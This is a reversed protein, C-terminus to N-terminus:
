RSATAPSTWATIKGVQERSFGAAGTLAGLIDGPRIKDKRGGMIQLTTMAPLLPGDDAIELAALDHWEPELGDDARHEGRRKDAPQVPQAGLRGPRRTRHPTRHVHVALTLTVDVNIVAELREIDLGRAAVDTAVLVPCSRNAFRILVQDRESSLRSEGNLTLAQAGHAHLAEM